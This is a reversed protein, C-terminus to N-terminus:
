KRRRVEAPPGLDRRWITGNDFQIFMGDPSFVAGQNWSDIWIRTSPAFWDPWARASEGAENLLNLDAGNQTIFASSGILGLRCTQVCKYAGTLNVTQASAQTAALIAFAGVISLLRRM